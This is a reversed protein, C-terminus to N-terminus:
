PHRILLVDTIVSFPRVQENFAEETRAQMGKMALRMDEMETEM